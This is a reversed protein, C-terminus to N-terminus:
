LSQKQLRKGPALFMEPAGDLLLWYLPCGPGRRREELPM